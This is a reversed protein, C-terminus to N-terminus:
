QQQLYERREKLMWYIMRLMKSAAAVTAKAKGRRVAIRNYFRTINSEKEYRAHSHVCETLTWRLYRSGTKTIKGTYTVGGSSHVSPVLGAYACLHHSDPFRSVDGIESSILLASYYGIGPVTMLLRAMEDEAATQRIKKSVDAITGDLSEMVSLYSDIRYNHLEKLRKVYAASFPYKEGIRIGSMLLISHIKNKMKTRTRVLFARHRVLERLEMVNREPVYCQVIYGGRLLDALVKADIKDTKIKASAIAKTKIPNSLIVDLKKHDTLYRYTGYWVSSSEMVVKTNDARIYRFFNSVQRHNNEIRSNTLVKGNNDMIAIQLFNKHLDMGIYMTGNYGDSTSKSTRKKM